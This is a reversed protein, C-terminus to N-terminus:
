KGISFSVLVAIIFDKDSFSNVLSSWSDIESKIFVKFFTPTDYLSKEISMTSELGLLM